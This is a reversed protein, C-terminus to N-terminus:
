TTEKKPDNKTLARSDYGCRLIDELIELEKSLQKFIQGMGFLEDQDYFAERSQYEFLSGAGNLASHVKWLRNCVEDFREKTLHKFKAM